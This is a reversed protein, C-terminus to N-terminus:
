DKPDIPRGAGAVLGLPVPTAIPRGAGTLVDLPEGTHRAVLCAAAYGCVRGQCRGMGVRSMLKLTRLDRAGLELAEAVGAASTEECRCVTTEPALTAMWGDPVPYVSRVAGAFRRLSDRQRRLRREEDDLETRRPTGCHRAATLAALGGEVEALRAGGIGTVEGAALVGPVSTRQRDDVAVTLVADSTQTMRCGLAMPLESQTAFGFGVALIDAAVRRVGTALPRGDRGLQAVSVAELRDIGHAAVVLARHRVPIRRRVLTGAFAAADRLLAPQSMAAPLHRLWGVPTNAEVIEVVDSGRAALGTAVPLLFPGTGAVVVRPGVAVGSGKLVAQAAGATMVGPLDWGPFPVQRDYAGTALVLVRSRLTVPRQRGPKRGDVAHVVLTSDPHREVTWVHHAPLHRLRGSEVQEDLRFRLRRFHEVGHHLGDDLDSVAPAHRWYQGGIHDAADIVVASHGREAVGAAASLGAPGAGVIVVDVQEGATASEESASTM